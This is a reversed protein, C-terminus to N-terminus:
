FPVEVALDGVGFELLFGVATATFGVLHMRHELLVLSQLREFSEDPDRDHVIDLREYKLSRSDDELVHMAGMHFSLGAGVFVAGLSVQQGMFLYGTLVPILGMTTSLNAVGTVQDRDHLKGGFWERTYSFGLFVVAAIPALALWITMWSLVVGIAAGIGVLAVGVAREVRADVELNLDGMSLDVANMGAHGIAWMAVLLVWITWDWGTSAAVMAAGVTATSTPCVLFYRLQNNVSRYVDVFISRVTTSESEATGDRSKTRTM